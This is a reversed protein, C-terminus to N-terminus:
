MRSTLSLESSMPCFRRRSYMNCDSIKRKSKKGFWDSFELYHNKDIAEPNNNFNMKKSAKSWKMWTCTFSRSEEHTGTPWTCHLSVQDIERRLTLTTSSLTHKNREYVATPAPFKSIWNTENWFMAPLNRFPSHQSPLGVIYPFRRWQWSGQSVNKLIHRLCYPWDAVAFPAQEKPCYVVLTRPPFENALALPASLMNEM